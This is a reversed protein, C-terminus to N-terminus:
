PNIIANIATATDLAIHIETLNGSTFFLNGRIRLEISALGVNVTMTVGPLAAVKTQASVFLYYQSIFDM